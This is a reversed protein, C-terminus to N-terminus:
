GIIIKYSQELIVDLKLTQIKYVEADILMGQDYAM